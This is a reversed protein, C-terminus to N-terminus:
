RDEGEASDSGEWMNSNSIVRVIHMYKLSFCFDLQTWEGKETRIKDDRACECVRTSARADERRGPWGLLFFHLNRNQGNAAWWGAPWFFCTDACFFILEGLAIRSEALMESWQPFDGPMYASELGSLFFAHREIKKPLRGLSGICGLIILNQAEIKDIKNTCERRERSVRLAAWWEWFGFLLLNLM